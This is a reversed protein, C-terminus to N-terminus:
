RTSSKWSQVKTQRVRAIAGQVIATFSGAWSFSKSKTGMYIGDVRTFVCNKMSSAPAQKKKAMMKMAEISEGYVLKVDEENSQKIPPSRHLFECEAKLIM